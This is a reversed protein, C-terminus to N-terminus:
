LLVQCQWMNRETVQVCCNTSYQKGDLSIVEANNDRLCNISLKEKSKLLM